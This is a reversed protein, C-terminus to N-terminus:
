FFSFTSRTSAGLNGVLVLIRDNKYRKIVTESVQTSVVVVAPVYNEQYAHIGFRLDANQRKADASKYGQRIEVVVGTLAASAPTVGTGAM